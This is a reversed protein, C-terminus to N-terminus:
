QCFNDQPTIRDKKQCISHCGVQCEMQCRNQCNRQCKQREKQCEMQCERQFRASARCHGSLEQRERNLLHLLLLLLLLLCFCSQYFRSVRVQCARYFAAIRIRKPLNLETTFFRFSKSCLHGPGLDLSALPLALSLLSNWYRKAMGPRFKPYLLPWLFDSPIRLDSSSNGSHSADILSM